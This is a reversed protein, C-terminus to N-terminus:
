PIENEKFRKSCKTRLSANLLQETSNNFYISKPLSSEESDQSCPIIIGAEIEGRKKNRVRFHSEKKGCNVM